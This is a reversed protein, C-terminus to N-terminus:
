PLMAFGPVATAGQVPACYRVMATSLSIPWRRACPGFMIKLLPPVHFQVRDLQAVWDTVARDHAQAWFTSAQRGQPVRITNSSGKNGPLALIFAQKAGPALSVAYRLAGSAKSMADDVATAPAVSNRALFDTLPGDDFGLVGVQDPPNLPIVAVHGDVWLPDHHYRLRQISSVGGATHTAQWPPNVLFPRVALFLSADVPRQGTNEIEYHALLGEEGMGGGLATVTLSVDGHAIRVSPIPLDGRALSPTASGDAWTHLRQDFYLFPEVSFAGEASELQGDLNLLAERNAGSGESGPGGTIAWYTQEGWLYRPYLGRAAARALREFTQTSSVSFALPAIELRRLGFGHRSHSHRLQLRLYRSESEPLPLYDRQGNGHSVRYVPVWTKGDDSQQVVYHSAYDEADWDLILGGYERPETFDLQLWATQDSTTSHWGHGAVSNQLNAPPLGPQSSSATVVLTGPDSRDPPRPELRLDDIWISGRQDAGRGIVFEIFGLSKPKGGAAPGWGFDFQRQKVRVTQWTPPVRFEPPNYRWVNQESADVLRVELPRQATGRITFVLAYNDPM